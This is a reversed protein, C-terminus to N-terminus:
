TTVSPGLHTGKGGAKVAIGPLLDGNGGVDAAQEAMAVIRTM